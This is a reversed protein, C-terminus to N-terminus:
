MLVDLSKQFRISFSSKCDTQLRTGNRGVGRIGQGKRDEEILMIFMMMMVHRLLSAITAYQEVVYAFCISTM